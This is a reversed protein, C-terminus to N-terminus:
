SCPDARGLEEIIKEKTQSMAWEAGGLAPPLCVDLGGTLFAEMKPRNASPSWRAPGSLEAFNSKFIQVLLAAFPEVEHPLQLQVEEMPRPSKHLELRGFGAVGADIQHEDISHCPLFEQFGRSFILRCTVFDPHWLGLVKDGEGKM